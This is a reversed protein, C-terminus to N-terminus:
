EQMNSMNMDSMDLDDMNMNDMSMDDMDHEHEPEPTTPEMMKATAERLKSESDILFQSSTVVHEGADIGSLIQSYGGASIGLTVDRPEFKGTTKAVFIQEREGSRVIAESPVIVAEAQKDTYLVVNAFMGPKLILDKNSFELRVRVTRTQNDQQPAIFTVKGKFIKGPAARVQLKAEDGLKIWPLDDEYIDLYVWIHSLDAILYLEDKPSVFQGERVGIHMVRGKFPSHIHLSRKLKRHKELEMIQHHPVDFFHLRDRASQLVRKSTTNKIREYNELAVLFEQQAAVLDPSYISLLISDEKVAVGTENINLEEIWGSIKPHLRALKEENFDVHGLANIERSLARIEAKATRVGINQVTVPDITVTGAPEDQANGDAYVPLYDMGMEDQMFVPSTIAPNMPNRWFLLERENNQESLVITESAPNIWYQSGYGIVLGLSLTTIATILINKNM